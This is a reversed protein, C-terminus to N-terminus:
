NIVQCRYGGLKKVVNHPAVSQQGEDFAYQEKEYLDILIFSHRQM